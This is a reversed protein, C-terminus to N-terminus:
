EYESENFLKDVILAFIKDVVKEKVFQFKQSAKYKLDSFWLLFRVDLFKVKSANKIGNNM